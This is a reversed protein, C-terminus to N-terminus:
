MLRESDAALVGTASFEAAAPFDSHTGPSPLGPQGLCGPKRWGLFGCLDDGSLLGAGKSWRADAFCNGAGARHRATPEQLSQFLADGVARDGQRNPTEGSGTQVGREADAESQAGLTCLRLETEGSTGSPGAGPGQDM